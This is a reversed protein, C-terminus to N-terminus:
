MRPFAGRGGPALVIFHPFQRKYLISGMGNFGILMERKRDEESNRLFSLDSSFGKPEFLVMEFGVKGRNGKYCMKIEYFFRYSFNGFFVGGKRLFCFSM